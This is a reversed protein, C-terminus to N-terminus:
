ICFCLDLERLVICEEVLNTELGFLTFWLVFWLSYGSPWLTQNSELLKRPYEVDMKAAEM